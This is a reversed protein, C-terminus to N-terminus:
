VQKERCTVIFGSLEKNEDYLPLFICEVLLPSNDTTVVELIMSFRNEGTEAPNRIVREFNALLSGSSNRALFHTFLLSEAGPQRNGFVRAASRNQYYIRLRSDLVLVMEPLSELIQVPTMGTGNRHMCLTNKQAARIVFERMRGFVDQPSGSKTLYYDVGANCAEIAIQENGKGTFLIFPTYDGSKRLGKLLSIGDELPMDYDSIIVHYPRIQLLARAEHASGCLDVEIEGGKELALKTINFLAHDDDVLLVRIVTVGGHRYWIGGQM